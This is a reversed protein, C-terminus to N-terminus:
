KFNEVISTKLNDKVHTESNWYAWNLVTTIKMTERLGKHYKKKRWM